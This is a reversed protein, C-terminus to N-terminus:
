LWSTVSDLAVAVAEVHRKVEEPEHKCPQGPAGCRSEMPAEAVAEAVRALVWCPQGSAGCRSEAEADRKCPQGLAGCIVEPARKCPQGPAGCRAEADRAALDSVILM